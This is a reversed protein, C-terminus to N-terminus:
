ELNQFLFYNFALSKAIGGEVTLKHNSTPLIITEVNDLQEAVLWAQEVPCLIDHRGHVIVTPIKKIKDMNQLIQNPKLFFSNAQYHLFIKVAAIAEDDIDDPDVYTLDSQSTLLNGEWNSVGAVINKIEAESGTQILEFFKKPANTPKLQYSQLFDLYGKRLDPYMRAVGSEQTFAWAEDEERALFVSSLLLGRVNDPYKQAYVLALTSGWSGGAVFWTDIELKHRLREIDSLISEVNNDAIAGLPESKGCGRQDFAILRYKNLEYGKVHKPKSKSGPGGHITLVPVGEPNGYEAYYVEHGDAEDLYGTNYPKPNTM